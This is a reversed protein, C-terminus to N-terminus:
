DFTLRKDSDSWRVPRPAPPAEGRVAEDQLAAALEDEAVGAERLVELTHAGLAPPGAADLATEHLVFPTRVAALEGGRPHPLAAIAARAAVQRDEAVAGLFQVPECPVAAEGLLALWHDAPRERLRRQLAECLLARHERRQANTAYRPDAALEDLALAACLRRWMADNGVALVIARDATQFSQYIALVSDTAGSPRPEPEGALFSAIRPAMLGLDAELLSVDILDGQGSRRQRVLAACIALAANTGAVIDSLATSVRQPGGDRAGTVSMLGSRAQAALDYGAREADPGTLGFGSIACYILRPHAARVAAPELGLRALKRPNVSVVLVDAGALLRELLGRGLPHRVDICVSRKNRNAALFWAAEGDVFPPGWARADDGGPREVKIVDAGLDGLYMTATPGAYSSSLDVVRVGRLPPEGSRARDDPAAAWRDDQGDRM